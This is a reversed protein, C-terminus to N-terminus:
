EASANNNNVERILPLVIKFISGENVKSKVEIKGDLKKVTESVIYLGLGSGASLDNTRYFMDFIKGMHQDNIGLGNDAVTIVLCSDERYVKVVVDPTRAPHRYRISNSILNTLIITLRTRDSLFVFDDEYRVCTSLKVDGSELYKLGKVLDDIILGLRLPEIQVETRNNRSYAVIDRITNDLKLISEEMMDVLRQPEEEKAEERLLYLLGLVSTLPARLDHSASYVFRDLEFNIKQLEKNKLQLEDIEAKTSVPTIEVIPNEVVAPIRKKLLSAIFIPLDVAQSSNILLDAGQTIATTLDEEDSILIFIANESHNRIRRSCEQWSIGGTSAFIVVKIGTQIQSELQDENLIFKLEFAGNLPIFAAKLQESSRDDALSLIVHIPVSQM